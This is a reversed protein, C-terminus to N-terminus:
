VAAKKVGNALHLEDHISQLAQTARSSKVVLSINRESSGQAIAIVNIDAQGLASFVRGAIGSHRRLGEGVVAIMSVNAEEQVSELSKAKLESRFVVQLAQAAREGDQGSVVVSINNESSAQSIFLVNIHHEALTNFVKAAVGVVGQMGKGQVTILSLKNLVTMAKAGDPHLSAVDTIKTGAVTPNLTNKIWIPISGLAAPVMTRPHLVKAGFYSLEAAEDYSLEHITHTGSVERPDATMVGDVDTWIWVEEAEVCYGIITASYDSGGRGLTTIIGSATAGMFGTIVPIINQDVLQQLRPKTQKRCAPLLPQANGFSDDTIILESAELTATALGHKQLAAAVLHISLQEGFCVILDKGQATLEGHSEVTDLVAELQGIITDLVSLLAEEAKPELGLDLAAQRHMHRLRGVGAVVAAQQARGTALAALEVLVNTVQSMASVVVIPQRAQEQAVLEAVHLIRKGSGVSTGGFKMVVM